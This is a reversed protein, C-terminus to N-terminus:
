DHFTNLLYSKRLCLVQNILVIANSAVAVSAKQAHSTALTAGLAGALTYDSYLLVPALSTPYPMYFPVALIGVGSFVFHLVPLYTATVYAYDLSRTTEERALWALAVSAALLYSAYSLTIITTVVRRPIGIFTTPASASLDREMGVAISM